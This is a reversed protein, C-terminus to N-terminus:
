SVTTKVSTVCLRSVSLFLLSPSLSFLSWFSFPQSRSSAANLFVTSQLLIVSDLCHPFNTHSILHWHSYQVLFTTLWTMLLVTYVNICYPVCLEGSPILLCSLCHVFVCHQLANTYRTTIKFRLRTLDKYLYLPGMNEACKLLLRMVYFKVGIQGSPASKISPFMFCSSM